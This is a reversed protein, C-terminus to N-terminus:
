VNNTHVLRPKRAWFWRLFREPNRFIPPAGSMQIYGDNWITRDAKELDGWARLLERDVRQQQGKGRARGIPIHKWLRGSSEPRGFVVVDQWEESQFYRTHANRHADLPGIEAANMIYAITFFGIISCIIEDSEICRLGAWFVIFDGASLFERIRRGRGGNADGYTLHGFDPDLHCTGSLHAPWQAGMEKVFPAFESYHREFAKGRDSRRADTVPVYCFRGDTSCPANWQGDKYDIGVRLLIGSAM